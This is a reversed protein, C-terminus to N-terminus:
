RTLVSGTIPGTSAGLGNAYSLVNDALLRSGAEIGFRANGITKGGRLRVAFPAMGANVWVGSGTVSGNQYIGDFEVDDGAFVAVGHSHSFDSAFREIRGIQPIEGGEARIRLGHLLPSIAGPKGVVQLNDVSLSHSHGRWDLGIAGSASGAWGMVADRINLIDSRRSGDGGWSIGVGGRLEIAHLEGVTVSNSRQIGLVNFGGDRLFLRRISVREAEACQVAYGGTQEACHLILDLMVGRSAGISIAHFNGAPMLGGGVLAQGDRPQIPSTIRYRRSPDFEVFRGTAIAAKISATDDAAAVGAAGFAEPSVSGRALAPAAFAVSASAILRLARRRSPPLAVDECAAARM